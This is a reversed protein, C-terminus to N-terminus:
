LVLREESELIKLLDTFRQEWTSRVLMREAAHTMQRHATRNKLGDAHFAMLADLAQSENAVVHAFPFDKLHSIGKVITPLGFYLYEYMKIPDVAESLRGSKFWIMAADWDKVYRYLESPHVKGYFRVRDSYRALKKQLDPEGYGILHVHLKFNKKGALHLVKLLFDWDFWSETLHGFYGLHIEDRDMQKGGCINRHEEGLLAPTYGNPSLHIDKRLANFKEILPPSVATVLNANIVFANELSKNFWIAQGVKHFEEWEDIIEYVVEFGFRRLKLASLFFGPYPFEVFFYKRAYEVHAFAEVSKLFMDVPVQFINRYVEEGLYPIAEKESWRWAIYIIGWGQQSLFKSLNIVRQNYLEDFVFASTVVFVGKLSRENLRDIVDSLVRVSDPDVASQYPELVQLTPAEQVGAILRGETRGFKLYHLLPNMGAKRVDEYRSLYWGSSFQPGPDRGELGGWRVYHRLPDVNSQAVDPNKALYWAEDFLDSSRILGLDSGRISGFWEKSSRIGDRLFRERRSRAPVLTERIQRIQQALRWYRSNLIGKMQIKLSFVEQRKTELEALRAQLEQEKDALTRTQRLALSQVVEMSFPTTSGPELLGLALDPTKSALENLERVRSALDNRMSEQQAWASELVKSLGEAHLSSLDVAYESLGLSRMFSDVKPDYTLAVAPVRASAAFILSHLRMGVVLQCHAILGATLSPSYTEPFLYVRDRNQMTSVIDLAAAHDNELLHEQVQFPIFLIQVDHTALFQDLTAALERKWREAQTGELWNRVCVGFLPRAQPDIGYSRLIDAASEPDSELTLVPDPLVTIKEERIGLETLLDRSEPDRVTAVNAVDFTWCTFERAEESLLPGVGVSYLVFPKQYLVALMGIASYYSIGWHSPTLSVGEPVGWYDQFLGGGGLIILDSEEAANLLGDIDKWHVSQVNHTAATEAPRESAVIFELDQRRKRLGALLATLIAEDGVNGFGYYGAILITKTKNENM